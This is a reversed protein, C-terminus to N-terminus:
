LLPLAAFAEGNDMLETLAPAVPVRGAGVASLWGWARADCVSLVYLLRVVCLERFSLRRNASFDEGRPMGHSAMCVETITTRTELAVSCPESEQQDITRYFDKLVAQDNYAPSCLSWPSAIEFPVLSFPSLLNFGRM